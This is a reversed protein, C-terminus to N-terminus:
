DRNLDDTSRVKDPSTWSNPIRLSTLNQFYKAGWNRKWERELRTVESRVYSVSKPLPPLVSVLDVVQVPCWFRIACHLVLNVGGLAVASAVDGLIFNRVPQLAWNAWSSTPPFLGPLLNCLRQAVGRRAVLNPRRLNSVRPIVV